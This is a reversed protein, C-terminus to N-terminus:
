ILYQSLFCYNSNNEKFFIIEEMRMNDGSEGFVKIDVNDYEKKNMELFNKRANKENKAKLEDACVYKIGDRSALYLFTFTKL